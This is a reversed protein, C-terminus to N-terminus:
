SAAFRGAASAHRSWPAEALAELFRQSDRQRGSALLRELLEQRESDGLDKKRGERILEIVRSDGVAGQSQETATTMWWPLLALLGAGAALRTITALRRGPM